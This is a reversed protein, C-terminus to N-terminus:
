YEELDIIELSDDKQNIENQSLLQSAKEFQSENNTSGKISEQRRSESMLTSYYFEPPTVPLVCIKKIIEETSGSVLCGNEEKFQCPFLKIFSSVNVFNPMESLPRETHREFM